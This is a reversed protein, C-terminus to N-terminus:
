NDSLEVNPPIQPKLVADEGCVHCTRECWDGCHYRDPLTWGELPPANDFTSMLCRPITPGLSPIDEYTSMRCIDEYPSM